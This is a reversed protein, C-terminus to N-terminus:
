RAENPRNSTEASRARRSVVASATLLVSAEGLLGILAPVAATLGVAATAIVAALVCNKCAATILSELRMQRDVPRVWGWWGSWACRGLAVVVAIAAAQPQGIAVDWAMRLEAGLGLMLVLAAVSMIGVCLQKPVAALVPRALYGLTVPLVLGVGVTLTLSAMSHSAGFAVFVLLPTMVVAVAYGSITFAIANDVSGRTVAVYSPIANAPPVVGLLFIGAGLWTDLGLVLGLLMLPVSSYLHHRLVTRGVWRAEVPRRPGGMAGIAIFTQTFVCLLALPRLEHAAPTVAGVGLGVISAMALWFAPWPTWPTVVSQNTM